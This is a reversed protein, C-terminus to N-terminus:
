GNDPRGRALTSPKMGADAALERLKASAEPSLSVNVQARESQRPLESM